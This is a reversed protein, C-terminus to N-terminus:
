NLTNFDIFLQNAESNFQKIDISLCSCIDEFENDNIDLSEKNFAMLMTEVTIQNFPIMSELRCIIMEQEPLKFNWSEREPVNYCCGM